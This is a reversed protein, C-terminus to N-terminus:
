WEESKGSDQFIFELLWGVLARRAAHRPFAMMALIRYPNGDLIAYVQM